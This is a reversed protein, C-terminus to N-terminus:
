AADGVGPPVWAPYPSGLTTGSSAGICIYRDGPVRSRTPIRSPYGRTGPFIAYAIGSKIAIISSFQGCKLM